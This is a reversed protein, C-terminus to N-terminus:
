STPTFPPSTTRSRCSLASLPCRHTCLLPAPPLSSLIHTLLLASVDLDVGDLVATDFPRLPGDGGLILNWMQHALDVADEKSVFSHKGDAGGLSMLVTKGMAQCATIDKGVQPCHLLTSNPLHGSCHDALDFHPVSFNGFRDAFSLLVADYAPDACVAALSPENGICDQGWYTVLNTNATLNLTRTVAAASSASLTLSVFVVLVLLPSM